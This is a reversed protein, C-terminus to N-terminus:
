NEEEIQGLFIDQLNGSIVKNNSRLEFLEQQNAFSSINDLKGFISTLTDIM